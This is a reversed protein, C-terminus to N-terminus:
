EVKREKDTLTLIDKMILAIGELLLLGAGFPIMLKVPWIIPSWTSISRENLEIARMAFDWGLWLIIVAFVFFAPFTILNAIAKGRESLNIYFLDMNVHAKEKLTYAGSVITLVGFVMVSIEHAWITPKNFVNRLILEWVIIVTLIWPFWMLVMGSVDVIKSIIRILARM